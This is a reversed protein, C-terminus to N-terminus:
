TSTSKANSKTEYFIHRAQRKRKLPFKEIGRPAAQGHPKNKKGGRKQIKSLTKRKEGKKSSLCAKRKESEDELEPPNAPADTKGENEERQYEKARM